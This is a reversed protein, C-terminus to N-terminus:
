YHASITFSKMTTAGPCYAMAPSGFRTAGSTHVSGDSCTVSVEFGTAAGGGVQHCDVWVTSNHGPSYRWVCAVSSAKVEGSAPKLPPAAITTLEREVAAASGAGAGALALVALGTMTARGMTRLM